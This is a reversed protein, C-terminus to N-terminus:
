RSILCMFCYLFPFKLFAFVLNFLWVENKYVPANMIVSTKDTDGSVSGQSVCHGILVEFTTVVFSIVFRKIGTM